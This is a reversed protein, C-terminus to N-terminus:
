LKILASIEQTKDLPLKYYDSHSLSNRTMLLYLQKRWMSLNRRKTIVVKYLSIYYSTEAPNLDLEPSLGRVSRLVKPIDVTDHYGYRLKLQSVGDVYGLADFEAREDEPVHAENAVTVSVILVKEPLEHLEELTQRLVLPAYNPHHSIYVAQDAFRHLSKDTNIEKALDELSGELAQREQVVIKEAKTWTTVVIFVAAALLLPIWGGHPIKSLNGTVFLLDLPLLLCAVSLLVPVSRQWKSRLVVLFLISDVALTGSVAIGYAGALGQSSRFLLVLLIVVFFLSYNVFPMYIQGSERTSTHRVLLRPLFDLHIAQRTISFAGSIVAQSAILTAATALLIVSVRLESPFLYYFPNTTASSNHLLLAGQGMYCLMLAPFILFFWARAIQPRGFHGMDAYLAEAGTIALVVATMAVFAIAFHHVLFGAATTPLMTRLVDPHVFVQHLGAFGIVVFWVIMVPGFLKGIFNTGYKQLWFLLMLVVITAPVVYNALHPTVVKVGEVASLVSIAPTIASDGYFLAMGILGLMVFITGTRNGKTFTKVISVLAMIGGEGRNDARMIMLVYKLSVVIFVSWLVLSILGYVNTETIAVRNGTPGFISHIAYLPSTGIDGFVVGVAGIMLALMAKQTRQM